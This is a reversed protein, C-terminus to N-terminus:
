VRDRQDPVVPELLRQRCLADDHLREISVQQIIWPLDVIIFALREVHEHREPVPAEAHRIIGGRGPPGRAGGGGGRCFVGGVM